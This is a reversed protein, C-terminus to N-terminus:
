TLHRPLVKDDLEAVIACLDVLNPQLHGNVIKENYVYVQFVDPIICILICIHNIHFTSEPLKKITTFCSHQAQGVKINLMHHFSETVTETVGVGNNGQWM